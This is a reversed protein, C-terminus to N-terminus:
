IQSINTVSQKFDLTFTYVTGKSMLFETKKRLTYLKVRNERTCNAQIYLM